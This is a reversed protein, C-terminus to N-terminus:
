LDGVELYDSLAEQVEPVNLLFDVMKYIGTISLQKLEPKRSEFAAGYQILRHTRERDGKKRLYREKQKDRELRSALTEAMKEKKEIEKRTEELTKGSLQIPKSNEQM